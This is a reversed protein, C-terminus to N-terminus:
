IKIIVIDSHDMLVLYTMVGYNTLLKLPFAKCEVSDISSTLMNYFANYTNKTSDQKSVKICDFEMNYVIAKEDMKKTFDCIMTKVPKLSQNKFLKSIIKDFLDLVSKIIYKCSHEIKTLDSLVKPTLKNILVNTTAKKNTYILIVRNLFVELSNIFHNLTNRVKVVEEYNIKTDSELSYSLTDRKELLTELSVISSIHENGTKIFEEISSLINEDIFCYTKDFQLNYQLGQNIMVLDTNIYQSSCNDNTSISSKNQFNTPRKPESEFSNGGINITKSRESAMESAQVAFRSNVVQSGTNAFTQQPQINNNYRFNDNGYSNVAYGYGNNNPYYSQTINRIESDISMLNNNLVDLNRKVNMDYPNLTGNRFSSEIYNIENVIRAKENQLYNLRNNM